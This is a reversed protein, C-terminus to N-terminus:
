EMLNEYELPGRPYPEAPPSTRQYVPQFYDDTKFFQRCKNCHVQMLVGNQWTCAAVQHCARCVAYTGCAEENPRDKSYASGNFESFPAFRLLKGRNKFYATAAKLQDNTLRLDAM